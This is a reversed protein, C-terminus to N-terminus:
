GKAKEDGSLGDQARADGATRHFFLRTTLLFILASAIVSVTFGVAFDLWTAFPPHGTVARGIYGGSAAVFGLGLHAAVARAAPLANLEYLRSFFARLFAFAPVVLALVLAAMIGVQAIPQAIWTLDSPHKGNLAGTVVNLAFLGGILAVWSVPRRSAEHAATIPPEGM